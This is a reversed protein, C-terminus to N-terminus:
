KLHKSPRNKRTYNMVLIKLREAAESIDPEEVTSIRDLYKLVAGVTTKGLKMNKNAHVAELATCSLESTIKPFVDDDLAFDWADDGTHIQSFKDKHSDKRAIRNELRDWIAKFFQLFGSAPARDWIFQLQKKDIHDTLFRFNDDDVAFPMPLVAVVNNNITNNTVNNSHNNSNVTLNHVSSSAESVNEPEKGKCIKM